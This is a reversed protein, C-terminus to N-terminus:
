RKQEIFFGAMTNSPETPPRNAPVRLIRSPVTRDLESRAAGEARTPLRNEATLNDPISRSSSSPSRRPARTPLRLHSVIKLIVPPDEIAGIIKLTGGCNPCHEIDIDFVRKLLRAWSIRPSASQAQADESSTETAREPPAPVIRSRLKANPA